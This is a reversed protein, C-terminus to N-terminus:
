KQSNIYLEEIILEYVVYMGQVYAIVVWLGVISCSRFLIDNGIIDSVVDYM